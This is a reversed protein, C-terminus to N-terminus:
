RRRPSTTSVAADRVLEEGEGAPCVNSDQCAISYDWGTPDTQKAGTVGDPAAATNVMAKRTKCIPECANVSGRDPLVFNRTTLSYSDDATKVRDALL